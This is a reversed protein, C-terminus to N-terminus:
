RLAAKARRGLLVPCEAGHGIHRHEVAETGQWRAVELLGGKVGSLLHAALRQMLRVEDLVGVAGVTGNAAFFNQVGRIVTRMSLPTHLILAGKGKTRQYAHGVGVGDDTGGRETVLQAHVGDAKAAGNGPRHFAKLPTQQGQFVRTTKFQAKAVILCQEGTNAQDPRPLEEANAAAIEFQLAAGVPDGQRWAELGAGWEGNEGGTGSDPTGGRFTPVSPEVPPTMGEPLRKLALDYLRPADPHDSFRALWSVLEAYSTRYSDSLYRDALVHGLLRLDTLRGIVEDAEHWRGEAQLAFIQQYRDADVQDLPTPTTVADVDEVGGTPLSATVPLGDPSSRRSCLIVKGSIAASSRM